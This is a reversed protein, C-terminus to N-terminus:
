KKRRKERLRRFFRRFVYTVPHAQKEVGELLSEYIERASERTHTERVPPVDPGALGDVIDFAAGYMMSIRDLYEWGIGWNRNKLIGEPYFMMPYYRSMLSNLAVKNDHANHAGLEGQLNYLGSMLELVMRAYGKEALLRLVPEVCDSHPNWALDNDFLDGGIRKMVGRYVKWVARRDTEGREDRAEEALWSLNQSFDGKGETLQEYLRAIMAEQNM